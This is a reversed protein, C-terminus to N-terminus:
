VPEAVIGCDHCPVMTILNLIKPNPNLLPHTQMDRKRQNQPSNHSEPHMNSFWLEKYEMSAVVWQCNAFSRLTEMEPGHMTTRLKEPQRCERTTQLFIETEENPM